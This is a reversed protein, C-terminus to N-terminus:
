PSLLGIAIRPVVAVAGEHVLTLEYIVKHHLSAKAPQQSSRAPQEFPDLPSARSFQHASVYRSASSACRLM